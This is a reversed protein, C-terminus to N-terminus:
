ASRRREGTALGLANAQRALDPGPQHAHEVDEVLRRDAQMGAVVVAQDGGQLPQAVHAVRHDDDFVVLVRQAASQSTSKPGPGPTLPPSITAWPVSASRAPEFGLRM